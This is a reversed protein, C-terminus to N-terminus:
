DMSQCVDRLRALAVSYDPRGFLASGAVLINAGNAAAIPATSQDIGGDVEFDISYGMECSRKSLASLKEMTEAMFKQGGFGPEVTMVLVLDLEKLYPYAAEPPTGPKLSMGARKGLRHIEAIAEAPDCDAEAHFTIGDAGAQAFASLYKMPESLMLHVDLPLRTHSSLSKVIPIGFSINPVFHGDMVDVHLM